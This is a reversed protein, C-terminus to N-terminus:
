GAHLCLSVHVYLCLASALEIGAVLGQVASIEGIWRIVGYIFRKTPSSTAIQVTSNVTLNPNVPLNSGLPATAVRAPDSHYYYQQQPPGQYQNPRHFNGYVQAREDAPKHQSDYLPHAGLGGHGGHGGHRGPRFTHTEIQFSEGAQTISSSKGQYGLRRHANASDNGAGGPITDYIHPQLSRQRRMDRRGVDLTSQDPSGQKRGTEAQKNSRIEDLLRQQEEFTITEGLAQKAEHKAKQQDKKRKQEEHEKLARKQEEVETKTM